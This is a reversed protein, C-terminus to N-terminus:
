KSIRLKSISKAITSFAVKLQDTTSALFAHAPSSACKLLFDDSYGATNLQLGVTYIIIGQAKMAACIQEASDFPSSAINTAPDVPDCNIRTGQGWTKSPAGRCSAYNFEGDTMFVAVKTLEPTGYALPRNVNEKDWVDAFNPSLLYWAWAIGVQGATAGAITLANISAKLRTTDANLPTVYNVTSCAGSGSYEIGLPAAAPSADTFTQPGFREVVCPSPRYLVQSGSTTTFLYRDCGYVTCQALGGNTYDVSMTNLAPSTDQLTYVNGNVASVQWALSTGSSCMGSTSLPCNNIGTLGNAGDIRIYDNVVFTQGPILVAANCTALACAGVSGGSTWDKYGVGAGPLYFVSGSPNQISISSNAPTMASTTGSGETMGWIFVPDSGLFGHNASTTVRYRCDSVLCESSSGGGSYTQSTPPGSIPITYVTTSPVAAVVWPANSATNVSSFGSVGTIYAFAGPSLTHASSTTVAVNCNHDYCRQSSGATADSNGSPPNTYSSTGIDQLWFYWPSSSTPDVARYRNGNLGAYSGNAGTIYVTDGNSIGPNSSTQVRIRSNGNTKTIGTITAAAGNRWSVGSITKGGATATTRWGAETITRIATAPKRWGAATIPTATVPAGRLENLATGNVHLSGLSVSTAWPVIAVKSFYPTQQPSVVEDVLAGAADKLAAIRAGSMSGTIDLSMAVEVNSGGRRVESQAAVNLYSQGVLPMFITNIKVTGTVVVREEESVLKVTIPEPHDTRFNANVFRAAIANLDANPDVTSGVALAAADVASALEFRALFARGGDVALGTCVTLPIAMLGFQIAFSGRRDKAFKRIWGFM